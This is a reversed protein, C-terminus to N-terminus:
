NGGSLTVQVVKGDPRRYIRFGSARIEAESRSDAPTASVSGGAGDPIQIQGANASGGRGSPIPAIMESLDNDLMWNEVLDQRDRMPVGRKRLGQMFTIKEKEREARAIIYKLLSKNAAVSMDLNPSIKKFIDMEKESISGKTQQINLFLFKGVQARFEEADAAEEVMDNPLPIGLSNMVVVMDTKFEALGGSKIGGKELLRLSRSAPIIVKANAIADSREQKLFDGAQGLEIREEEVKAEEEPTLVRAQQGSVDGVIKVPNGAGDILVAKEKGDIMLNRITGGSKPTDRRVFEGLALRAVAPDSGKFSKLFQDKNAGSLPAALKAQEALAAQYEAQQTPDFRAPIGSEGYKPSKAAINADSAAIQEPTGIPGTYRAIFNAPAEREQQAAQATQAFKMVNLTEPHKGISDSIVRLEDENDAGVSEPNDKFQNFVMDGIAKEKKKKEKNARFKELTDGVTQGISEFAAGWHKGPATAAPMNM